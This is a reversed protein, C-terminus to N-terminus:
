PLETKSLFRMQCKTLLKRQELFGSGFLKDEWGAFEELAVPKLKPNVHSCAIKRREQSVYHSTSGLLV